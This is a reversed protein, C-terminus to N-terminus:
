LSYDGATLQEDIVHDPDDSSIGASQVLVTSHSDRLSLQTAPGQAAVVAILLEDAIPDIAVGDIALGRITVNGGSITLPGPSGPSPGGFAILPTGTFGPQTTGDILVSATIPPLPTLPAITQIGPGPIDFDISNTGGGAANSDLLAQRLSGPGSDATTAVLFIG